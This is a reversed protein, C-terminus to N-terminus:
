ANREAIGRTISYYSLVDLIEKDTCEYDGEKFKNLSIISKAIELKEAPLSCFKTWWENETDGVWDPNKFCAVPTRHYM